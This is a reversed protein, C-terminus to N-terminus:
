EGPTNKLVEGMPIYVKYSGSQPIPGMAVGKGLDTLMKRVTEPDDEPRLTFLMLGCKETKNSAACVVPLNDQTDNTIHELQGNDAAQQFKPSVEECRAKPTWGSKTFYESKWRAIAQRKGGPTEAYTVYTGQADQGCFYRPTAQAPTPPSVPTTTQPPVSGGCSVLSLTLLTLGSLGFLKSAFPQTSM